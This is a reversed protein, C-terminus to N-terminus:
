PLSPDADIAKKLRAIERRRNFHDRLPKRPPFPRQGSAQEVGARINPGDDCRQQHRPQRLMVAPLQGEQNEPGRTEKPKGRPM